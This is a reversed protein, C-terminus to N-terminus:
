SAAGDCSWIGAVPSSIRLHTFAQYYLYIVYKKLIEGTKGILIMYSSDM